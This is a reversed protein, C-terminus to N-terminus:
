VAVVRINTIFNFYEDQRSNEIFGYLDVLDMEYAMQQVMDINSLDMRDMNAIFQLQALINARRRKTLVM